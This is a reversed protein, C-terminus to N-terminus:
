KLQLFHCYVSVVICVHHYLLIDFMYTSIRSVIELCVHIELNNYFPYACTLLRYWVSKRRRCPRPILSIRTDNGCMFLNPVRELCSVSVHM